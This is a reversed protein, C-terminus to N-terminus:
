IKGNIVSKVDHLSTVLYLFLDLRISVGHKCKFFFFFVSIYGTYASFKKFKLESWFIKIEDEFNLMCKEGNKLLSGMLVVFKSTKVLMNLKSRMCYHIVIVKFTWM